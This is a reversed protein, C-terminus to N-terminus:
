KSEELRPRDPDPKVGVTVTPGRQDRSMRTCTVARRQGYGPASQTRGPGNSANSSTCRTAHCNDAADFWTTSTPWMPLWRTAMGTAEPTECERGDLRKRKNSESTICPDGAARNRENEKNRALVKPKHRALAPLAAFLGGVGALVLTVRLPM